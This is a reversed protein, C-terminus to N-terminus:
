IQVRVGREFPKNQVAVHLPPSLCVSQLHYTPGAYNSLCKQILFRLLFLILFLSTRLLHSTLFFLVTFTSLEARLFCSHQWGTRWSVTESSTSSCRILIPDCIYVTVRPNESFVGHAFVYKRKKKQFTGWPPSPCFICSFVNLALM